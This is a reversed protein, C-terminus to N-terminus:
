CVAVVPWRQALRALVRTPFLETHEVHELQDASFTARRSRGAADMWDCLLLDAVTFRVSM